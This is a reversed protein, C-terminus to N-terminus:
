RALKKNIFKLGIIRGLSFYVNGRSQYPLKTLDDYKLSKGIKKEIHRDIEEWDMKSIEETSLGIHSKILRKTEENLKLM